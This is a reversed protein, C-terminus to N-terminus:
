QLATVSWPRVKCMLIRSKWRAVDEEARQGEEEERM